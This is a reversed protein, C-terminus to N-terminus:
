LEGMSLAPSSLLQMEWHQQVHATREDLCFTTPVQAATPKPVKALIEGGGQAHPQGRLAWVWTKGNLFATPGPPYHYQPTGIM